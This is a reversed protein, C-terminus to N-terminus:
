DLYKERGESHVPEVNLQEELPYIPAVVRMESDEFSLIKKKFNIIKQNDISWDIWILIPYPNTDDVIKIVEFDDYTRLGEIDLPVQFLKGIPLVKSQNSLCLQIPSSDLRLRNM